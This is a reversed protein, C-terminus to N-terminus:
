SGAEGAFDCSSRAMFRAELQAVADSLTFASTMEAEVEADGGAEETKLEQDGFEDLPASSRFM